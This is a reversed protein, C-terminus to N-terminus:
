ESHVSEVTPDFDLYPGPIPSLVPRWREGSVAIYHGTSIIGSPHWSPILVGSPTVRYNQNQWELYSTDMVPPTEITEEGDSAISRKRKPVPIGRKPKETYQDYAWDTGYSVM